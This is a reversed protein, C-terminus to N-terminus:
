NGPSPPPLLSQQTGLVRWPLGSRPDIDWYVSWTKQISGGGPLPAGAQIRLSRSSTMEILGSNLFSTDMASSEADRRAALAAARAIDGGTLIQLVREPAALVNVRGSGGMVEATVLGIIKAYLDYTMTPVRLLDETADFGQAVGKASKAQRTEWTAQAMAQAEAPPLAGGYRYLEVLLGLPANNLDIFGNLPQILVDFSVGEFQIPIVQITKEPGKQQAHLDQLALLIAADVLAGSVLTQRQMAATQIETRVAKVIGTIILGMAAVLWLVAVLAVGRHSMGSPNM